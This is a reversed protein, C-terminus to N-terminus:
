IALYELLLLCKPIGLFYWLSKDIIVFLFSTFQFLTWNIINLRRFTRRWIQSPVSKHYSLLIASTLVLGVSAFLHEALHFTSHSLLELIRLIWLLSKREKSFLKRWFKIIFLFSSNPCWKQKREVFPLHLPSVFYIFLECMSFHQASSMGAEWHIRVFLHTTVKVDRYRQM